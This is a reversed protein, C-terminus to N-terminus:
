AKGAIVDLVERTLASVNAAAGGDPEVEAPTRGHFTMERFATREMLETVLVRAGARELQARAHKVARTPLVPTKSLLVRGPIERGVVQGSRALLALSRRAEQVDLGSAQAPVIVLDSRACAYTVANNASGELDVLVFDASMSEVNIHDLISEESVGSVIRLGLGSLKSWSVLHQNPDADLFAVRQKAADLEAGVVIAATTKGAGGKSSAFAIVHGRKGM